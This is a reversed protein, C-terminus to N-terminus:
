AAAKGNFKDIAGQLRKGAFRRLDRSRKQLEILVLGAQRESYRVPNTEQLFGNADSTMKDSYRGTLGFVRLSKRVWAPAKTEIRAGDPLIWGAKMMGIRPFLVKRAYSAIKGKGVVMRNVYKFKGVQVTGSTRWVVRGNTRKRNRRHLEDMQAINGKPNYQSAETGLVAGRYTKLTVSPGNEGLMYLPTAEKIFSGDGVEVFLNGLDEMITGRVVAATKPPFVKVLSNSALRLQDVFVAKLSQGTEKAFYKMSALLRETKVQIKAELNRM